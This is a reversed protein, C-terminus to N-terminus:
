LIETREHQQQVSSQFITIMFSHLTAPNNFYLHISNKRPKCYKYARATAECHMTRNMPFTCVGFTASITDPLIISYWLFRSNSAAFHCLQNRGLM